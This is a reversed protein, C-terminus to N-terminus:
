DSDSDEFEESSGSDSDMDMPETETKVEEKKSIKKKKVTAEWDKHLHKYLALAARADETPDHPGTQIEISLIQKTLYKLSFPQGASKQIPRYRATDRTQAFPHTLMLAQFDHKLEHGVVIRNKIITAVEGQVQKFPPANELHKSKIGSYRTRYDTVKELPQCYKDYIVNGYSNIIAVRALASEIGGPGVGVMECDLGLVKTPETSNSTPLPLTKARPTTLKSAPKQDQTEQANQAKKQKKRERNQVWHPPPKQDTKPAPPPIKAKLKQWNSGM